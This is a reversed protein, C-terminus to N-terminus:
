HSNYRTSSSHRAPAYRNLQAYLAGAASPPQVGGTLIERQTLDRGYLERNDANDPRLTAGQLTIGAFLGKARSYALIEAHLTPDTNAEATRGVPGAMVSADGGVTFKDNMLKDMGRQNMVLMVVDTEGAGIQLGVSGGEIRIISPASWGNGTRCTVVGKGFKAGVVFGARKLNPVVAVCQSKEMLDTPIGKDKSAMIDSLVEASASIHKQASAESAAMLCGATALTLFGICYKM